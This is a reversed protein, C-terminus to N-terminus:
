DITSILVLGSIQQRRAPDPTLAMALAVGGGMSNGILTVDKLERTKIFSAVIEGHDDLSYWSNAPKASRGCGKLDIMIVRFHRSLPRVLLRWTHLNAGLGHLLLLPPGSGTERSYIQVTEQATRITTFRSLM